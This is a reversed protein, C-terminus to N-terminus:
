RLDVDHESQACFEGVEDYAFTRVKYEYGHPVYVTKSTPVYGHNGQEEAQRVVPKDSTTLYRMQGERWKFLREGSAEVQHVTFYGPMTGDIHNVNLASLEITQSAGTTLSLPLVLNNIILEYRYDGVSPFPYVKFRKEWIKPSSHIEKSQAFNYSHNALPNWTATDKPILRIDRAVVFVENIRHYQRTPVAYKPVEARVIIEARVDKPTIDVIQESADAVTIAKTEGKLAEVGGFRVEYSGSPLLYSAPKALLARAEGMNKEIEIKKDNASFEVTPYPGLDTEMANLDAKIQLLSLPIELTKGEAVKYGCLTVYQWRAVGQIQLCGEGEFVKTPTEAATIAVAGKGAKVFTAKFESPFLNKAGTSIKLKVYGFRGTPNVDAADSAPVLFTLAVLFLYKTSM